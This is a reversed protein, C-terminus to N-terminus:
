RVTSSINPLAETGNMVTKMNNFLGNVVEMTQTVTVRSEEM